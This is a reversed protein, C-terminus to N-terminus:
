KRRMEGMFKFAKANIFQADELLVATPFEKQLRDFLRIGGGGIIYINDMVKYNFDRKIETTILNVHQAIDDEYKDLRVKGHETTIYGKQFKDDLQYNKFKCEYESNIKQALNSYMVLMGLPYTASEVMRMGQFFSLDLTGGGLDIVLTDDKKIDKANLFVAGVSQPYVQVDTIRIDQHHNNNLKIKRRGYDSIKNIFAEKQKSYYSVPLGVAVPTEIFTTEKFSLGIAAFTCLETVLSDIKNNDAVYEGTESGIIYNQGNMELQITDKNIDIDKGRKISSNFIIGESTKTFNYGNDIGIM